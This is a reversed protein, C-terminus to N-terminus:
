GNTDGQQNPPPAAADRATPGQRGNDTPNLGPQEVTADAPINLARMEVVERSRIALDAVFKDWAEANTGLEPNLQRIIDLTSILGMSRAEKWIRLQKERDGRASVDSFDVRLAAEDSLPTPRWKSFVKLLAFAGQEAKGFTKILEDRRETLAADDAGSVVRAALRDISIGHNNAARSSLADITKLYHDPPTVNNIVAFTAGEGIVLPLEGDMVQGKATDSIDGSIVPQNEGQAKHLKLMLATLLSIGKQAEVLDDGCTDGDDGGWVEGARIPIWPQRGVIIPAPTVVFEGARNFTFTEADDIFVYHSVSQGHDDITPQDYILAMDRTPDDPDAITTVSDPTLVDIVIGLRSSLRMLLWVRSFTVLRACLDLKANLRTEDVLTNFAEQEGEPTITRTPTTGYVMRGLENAVRRLLAQAAAYSAFPRAKERVASHKFVRQIEAEIVSQAQNRYLRIRELARLRRAPEGDRTVAALAAKLVDGGVIARYGM